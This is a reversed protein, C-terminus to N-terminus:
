GVRRGAVLELSGSRGGVLRGRVLLDHLARYLRADTNIPFKYSPYSWVDHTAHLYLLISMLCV